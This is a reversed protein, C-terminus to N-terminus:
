PSPVGTQGYEGTPNGSEGTKQTASGDGKNNSNNKHKEERGSTTGSHPTIHLLHIRKGGDNFHKHHLTQFAQAGMVPIGMGGHNSDGMDERKAIANSDPEPRRIAPGSAIAAKRTRGPEKM